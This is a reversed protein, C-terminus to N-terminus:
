FGFDDDDKPISGNKLAKVTQGTSRAQPLSRQPTSPRRTLGSGAGHVLRNLGEVAELLNGAQNALEGAASASAEASAANSQTVKDMETMAITIQGIGQTQEKSAEAVEALLEAVKASRDAVTKFGEATANVMESGSAINSITSAILDATQKAAEASRIALNRVEDAVVAFGAGAEGARAAEVAANLALLNTQFAIEDITKIIKGIENGSVSIEEMARIVGGMSSDAKKVAETAQSMFTNAELSNDSNRKTMSSLEELAASTEELSAANETAGAALTNSSGSLQSSARDVEQAGESLNDILRNVPGTISKTILIGLLLSIALAVLLGIILARVVRTVAGTAQETVRLTLENMSEGLQGASALTEKRIDARKRTTAQNDLVTSKLDTIAARAEDVHALLINMLQINSPISSDDKIAQVTDAVIKLDDNLATDFQRGDRDLIGNLVHIMMEGINTELISLKAIRDSRRLIAEDPKDEKIEELQRKLQDARFQNTEKIFDNYSKVVRKRNAEIAEITHPLNLTINTFDAYNTEMTRLLSAASSQGRLNEGNFISNLRRINENVSQKLKVAENWSDANGSYNYDLTYLAESTVGYEVENATSLAPIIDQALHAAGSRVEQLSFIIFLSLIVFIVCAAGFGLLIKSGLKM